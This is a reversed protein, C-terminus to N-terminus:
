TRPFLKLAFGNAPLAVIPDTLVKEDPDIASYDRFTRVFHHVFLLIKIKAFEWGPCVRHGAAFPLFTYPAVHMGEEQFRSPKFKAPENFYEEKMHTSYVTWITM